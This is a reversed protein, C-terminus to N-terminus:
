ALLAHVPDGAVQPQQECPEEVELMWPAHIADEERRNREIEARFEEMYPNDAWDGAFPAWSHGIETPQIEMTVIEVQALWELLRVRLQQLAKERTPAQVLIDPWTLLRAIYGQGNAYEISVEYRLTDNNPNTTNM